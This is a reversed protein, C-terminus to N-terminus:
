PAHALKSARDEVVILVDSHADGIPRRQRITHVHPGQM